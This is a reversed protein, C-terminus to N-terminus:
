GKKRTGERRPGVCGSGPPRTVEGRSRTEGFVMETGPPKDDTGRSRGGGGHVEPSRGETGGGGAGGGNIVISFLFGFLSPVAMGRLPKRIRQPKGERGERDSQSLSDGRSVSVRSHGGRTRFDPRRFERNTLKQHNISQNISQNM